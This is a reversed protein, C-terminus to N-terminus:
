KKAFHEKPSEGYMKSFARYFTPMSEFGCEGALKSIQPSSQEKALSMFNRLRVVNLYNSLSEGICHNFLRSFYCKNYGFVSAISELTIRERYHEDIYRLIDVMFEMNGENKPVVPEYHELLTGFVVNAYGKKVLSPMSEKEGIIRDFIHRLNKRNFDKDSLLPSLTTSKLIKDIDREHESSIIVVYKRYSPSPTFSHVYYNHVFIIDDEEAFFHENGVTCEIVGELVYLIEITRHFHRPANTSKGEFCYLDRRKDHKYEYIINEM